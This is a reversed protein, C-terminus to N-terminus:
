SSVGRMTSTGSAWRPPSPRGKSPTTSFRPSGLLANLTASKGVSVRGFAAIHIHGQVLKDVMAEVQDYDEALAKRVEPPIRDDHVLERLSERALALQDDGDIPKPSKKLGGERRLEM